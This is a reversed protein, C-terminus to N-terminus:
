VSQSEPVTIDAFEPKETRCQIACSWWHPDNVPVNAPDVYYYYEVFMEYPKQVVDMPSMGHILDQCMEKIVRVSDLLSACAIKRLLKQAAEAKSTNVLLHLIDRKLPSDIFEAYSRYCALVQGPKPGHKRVDFFYQTFNSEDIILEENM